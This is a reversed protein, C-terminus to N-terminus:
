PGSCGHRGHILVAREHPLPLISVQPHFLLTYLGDSELDGDNSIELFKGDEGALGMGLSKYEVDLTLICWGLYVLYKRPTLCLKDIDAMPIDLYFWDEREMGMRMM